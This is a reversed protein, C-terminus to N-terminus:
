LIEFKKKKTQILYAKIPFHSITLLTQFSRTVILNNTSVYILKKQIQDTMENIVKEVYSYEIMKENIGKKEVIVSWKHLGYVIFVIGSASLLIENGFQLFANKIM